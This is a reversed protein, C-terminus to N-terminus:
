ASMYYQRWQQPNQSKERMAKVVRAAAHERSAGSHAVGGRITMM